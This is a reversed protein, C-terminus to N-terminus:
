PWVPEDTGCRFDRAKEDAIKRALENAKPNSRADIYAVHCVGGPALRTVVLVRGTATIPGRANVQDSETVVNWRLITAFPKIKGGPLAEGRWEM